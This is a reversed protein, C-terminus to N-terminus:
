SMPSKPSLLFRKNHSSRKVGLRTLVQVMENRVTRNIGSYDLHSLVDTATWEKKFDEAGADSYSNLDFCELLLEELPSTKFHTQNQIELKQEEEPTLWWQKGSKYMIDVEAWLQQIDIGHNYDLKVVPIVWFRHNGTSDILFEEENVSGCFITRRSFKSDKRAYPLRLMDENNTIFAKLRAIDKRFTSDLEGLEVIWHSIATKVSDKNSPDLTCGEKFYREIEYPLLKKFWATKGLSQDGQFVLVGKSYFRENQTAAVGSILWKRLLLEKTEIPFLTKTEITNYLDSLRSMGDWPKSEIFELIPNYPNHDAIKTIYSEICSTEIDNLKYVSLIDAFSANDKNDQSYVQEPVSIDCNKSIVNYRIKINYNRLLIMFNNYTGKPPKDSEIDEVFMAKPLAKHLPYHSFSEAANIKDLQVRHKETKLKRRLNSIQWKTKDKIQQLYCEAENESYHKALTNIIKGVDKELSFKSLENIQKTIAKQRAENELENVKYIITAFTIPKDRANDCSSYQRKANERVAEKNKYEARTDALSWKVFLEKGRDNGSYQHNLAFGVDRWMPYDSTSVDYHNLYDTVEDNSLDCPSKRLIPTFNYEACNELRHEISESVLSPMSAINNILDTLKYILSNSTRINVLRPESKNHISGAIRIPQTSVKFSKDGGIKTSLISRCEILEDFEKNKVFESLRWYVHLKIENRETIGGSEVIMSPTGLYKIAHELKNSIYGSDIDVLLVQSGLIHQTKAGSQSQTTAPICYCAKNKAGGEKTFNIMDSIASEKDSALSWQFYDKSQTKKGKEDFCRLAIYGEAGNFVIDYYKRISEECITLSSQKSISTM